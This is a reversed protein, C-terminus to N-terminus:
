EKEIADLVTPHTFRLAVWWEHYDLYITPEM